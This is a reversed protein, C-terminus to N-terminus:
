RWKSAFSYDEWFEDPDVLSEMGRKQVFGLNVQGVGIRLARSKWNEFRRRMELLTYVKGNHLLKYPADEEVIVVAMRPPATWWEDTFKSFHLGEQKLANYERTISLRRWQAYGLFLILVTAAVLLARLSFRIRRM